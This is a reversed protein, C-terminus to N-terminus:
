KEYNDEMEKVADILKQIREGEKIKQKKGLYFFAFLMWASYLILAITKYLVSLPQLVEIFYFIFAINLVIFYGTSVKTNITKQLELIRELAKLTNSPAQTFNIKKLQIIQYLRFGSFVLICLVMLGLGIFTSFKKFDISAGVYLLVVITFLLITVQMMIKQIFSNKEKKAKAIVELVDPLPTPQQKKWIEQLSNFDNM